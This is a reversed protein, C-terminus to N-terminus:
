GKCKNHRYETGALWRRHRVAGVLTREGCCSLTIEFKSKPKRKREEPLHFDHCRKGDGGLRKFLN